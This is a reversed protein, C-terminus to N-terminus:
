NILCVKISRLQRLFFLKSQGKSYLAETDTWDLKNNIHVGLFEYNDM